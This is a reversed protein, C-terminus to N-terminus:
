GEPSAARSVTFRLGSSARCSQETASHPLYISPIRKEISMFTHTFVSVSSMAMCLHASMSPFFGWVNATKPESRFPQPVCLPCEFILYAFVFVSRAVLFCLLYVFM